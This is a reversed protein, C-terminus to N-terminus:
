EAAQQVIETLFIRDDFFLWMLERIKWSLKFRNGNSLDTLRWNHCGHLSSGFEVAGRWFFGFQSLTSGFQQADPVSGLM